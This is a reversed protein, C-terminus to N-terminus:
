CFESETQKDEKVPSMLISSKTRQKSDLIYNISLVRHFKNM